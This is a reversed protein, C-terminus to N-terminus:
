LGGGGSFEHYKVGLKSILYLYSLVAIIASVGGVILYTLFELGAVLRLAFLLRILLVSGGILFSSLMGVVMIVSVTNGSEKIEGDEETSFKAHNFDYRTAFCIQAFSCLLGGLLIFLGQWWIVYGFAMLLTASIIQSVATVALCLVVKSFFVKKYGLPYAKVSFFMEGDRSINTSCFVNTLSGFMLTLFVAIELNCNMGILKQVISSGITMCFYVMLPMIIAVSFYSFTYSPTRFILLFDKEMLAFFSNHKPAITQKRRMFNVDGAIRSQMVWLMLRHIVLMAIALCALVLGLLCLGSVLLNNGMLMDACWKAPYLYLNLAQLFNMVQENFFFKLSDGLLMDRVANLVVSYLYFGAALIVTIVIFYLVFRNKLFQKIAHFPMAILAGIAISILPLAPCFVATMVYFLASQAVQTGIIINVVLVCAASIVFQSFYISILKAIFVSSAGVPMAVLLKMDDAEFFQRDIQTVSSIVLFILILTYAMTLLEYMRTQPRLLGGTKVALYINTFRGFFVVFMALFVVILAWRIIFGFADFNGKKYASSREQASKRLLTRVQKFNIKDKM